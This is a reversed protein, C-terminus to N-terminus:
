KGLIVHVWGEAPRKKNQYCFLAYKLHCQPMQRRKLAHGARNCLVFASYLLLALFCSFWLTTIQLFEHMVAHQGSSGLCGSSFFFVCISVGFVVSGTSYNGGM